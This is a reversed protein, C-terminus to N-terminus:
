DLLCSRYYDGGQSELLNFIQEIPESEVNFWHDGDKTEAGLRLREGLDHATLKNPTITKGYYTTFDGLPVVGLEIVFKGSDYRDLQITLLENRGDRSRRFHPFSGRFGLNRLEPVLNAKLYDRSM